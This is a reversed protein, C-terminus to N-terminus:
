EPEECVFPSAPDPKATKSQAKPAEADQAGQVGHAGQVAQVGQAKQQEALRDLYAAWLEQEMECALCM